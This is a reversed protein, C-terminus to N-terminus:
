HYSELEFTNPEFNIASSRMANMINQRVSEKFRKFEESTFADVVKYGDQTWPVKSIINNEAEYLAEGEGWFFDGEVKFQFPENDIFLKCDKTNM